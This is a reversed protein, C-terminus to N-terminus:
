SGERYVNEILWRRGSKVLEVRCTYVAQGTPNILTVKVSAETPAYEVDYTPPDPVATIFEAGTSSRIEEAMALSDLMREQLNSIFNPGAYRQAKKIAGQSMDDCWEAAVTEPPMVRVANIIMIIVLVSAAVIGAIRVKKLEYWRTHDQYYFGGAPTLAGCVICVKQEDTLDAKCKPCKTM